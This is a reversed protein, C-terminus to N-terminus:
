GVASICNAYEIARASKANTYINSYYLGFAMNNLIACLMRTYNGDQKKELCKMLLGLPAVIYNYQYPKLM